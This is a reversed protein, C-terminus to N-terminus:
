NGTQVVRFGIRLSYEFQKIQAFRNTLNVQQRNNGYSGGRCLQWPYYGQGTIDSYNPGHPNVASGAPLSVITGTITPTSCYDWIKEWVNGSIDYLGLENPLKQGVPNTTTYTLSNYGNSIATNLSSWAVSDISDTSPNQGSIGPYSGLVDNSGGKAAYLWEAETPLRYGNGDWNVCDNDPRLICGNTDRTFSTADRLLTENSLTSSSYYVPTLGAIESLANCWIIASDWNIGSAPHLDSVGPLSVGAPFLYKAEYMEIYPLKCLGVSGETYEISGQMVGATSKSYNSNIDQVAPVIFTYGNDEGWLKVANWQDYRVEYKGISYPNLTVNYSNTTGGTLNNMDYTKTGSDIVSVMEIIIYANRVSLTEEENFYAKAKIYMSKDVSISVSGVNQTGNELTPETGDNTYVIIAQDSNASIDLMKATSYIGQQLSMSLSLNTTTFTSSFDEDIVDGSELKVDGSINVIYDTDNLLTNQPNFTMVTKDSNWTFFGDNYDIINLGDSLSFVKEVSDSNMPHSFSIIIDSDLPIDASNNIPNVSLNVETKKGGTGGTGGSGGSGGSCSLFQNVTFFIVLILFFKKFYVIM